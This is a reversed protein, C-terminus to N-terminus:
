GNLQGSVTLWMCVHRWVHNAVIEDLELRYSGCAIFVTFSVDQGEQSAMSILLLELWQVCVISKTFHLKCIHSLLSKAAM